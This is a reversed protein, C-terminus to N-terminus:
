ACGVSRAWRLSIRRRSACQLRKMASEGNTTSALASSALRQSAEGRPPSGPNTLTTSSDVSSIGSAGPLLRRSVKCFMWAQPRM